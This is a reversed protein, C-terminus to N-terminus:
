PPDERPADTRAGPPPWHGDSSQSRRGDQSQADIRLGSSVSPFDLPQEAVRRLPDPHATPASPRLHTPKAM